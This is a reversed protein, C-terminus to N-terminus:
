INKWSNRRGRMYFQGGSLSNPSNAYLSAVPSVRAIEELMIVYALNDAGQGGLERPIKIGYFGAQAMKKQLEVPFIGTEEVKDLVDSTFESQCFDRVLKRILRHKESLIM